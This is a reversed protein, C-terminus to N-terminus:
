FTNFRPNNDTRILRQIAARTDPEVLRFAIECVIMHGTNGWAFANGTMGALALAVAILYRMFFGEMTSHLLKVRQRNYHSCAKQWRRNCDGRRFTARLVIRLAARIRLCRPLYGTARM